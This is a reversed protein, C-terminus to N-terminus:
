SGLKLQPVVVRYRDAGDWVNGDSFRYVVAGLRGGSSRYVIAVFVEEHGDKSKAKFPILTAYGDPHLWSGFKKVFQIIQGQGLCLVGPDNALSGFIEKFDGDKIMEYVAIKMEPTASGPVNTRYNEFDPDLWGTFLNGANALTEKGDTPDLTLTEEGSILRLYDGTSKRGGVLEPVPDPKKPEDAPPNLGAMFKTLGTGSEIWGQKINGDMNRPLARILQVILERDQRIAAEVTQDLEVQTYTKAQVTKM